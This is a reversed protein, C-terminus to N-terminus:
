SYQPQLYSNKNAATLISKLSSIFRRIVRERQESKKFLVKTQQYERAQLQKLAALLANEEMHDGYERAVSLANYFLLEVKIFNSERAGVLVLNKKIEEFQEKHALTLPQKM